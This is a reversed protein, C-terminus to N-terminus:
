ALNFTFGNVDNLQTIPPTLAALQAATYASGHPPINVTYQQSTSQNTLVLGIPKTTVNDAILAGTKTGDQVTTYTSNRLLLTNPDYFIVVAIVTNGSADRLTSIVEGSLAPV